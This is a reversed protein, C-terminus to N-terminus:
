SSRRFLEAGDLFVFSDTRSCTPCRRGPAPGNNGVTITYALSNQGQSILGKHTKTITWRPGSALITTAHHASGTAGGAGFVNGSISAHQDRQPAV